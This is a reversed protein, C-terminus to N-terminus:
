LEEPFFEALVSKEDTPQILNATPRKLTGSASYREVIRTIDKDAIRACFMLMVGFFMGLIFFIM